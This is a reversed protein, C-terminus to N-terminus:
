RTTRGPPRLAKEGQAAVHYRDTPVDTWEQRTGDPWFVTLKDVRDTDGLGFVHRRDAHQGNRAAGSHGSTSCACLGAHQESCHPGSGAM